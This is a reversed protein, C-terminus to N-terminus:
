RNGFLEAATKSRSSYEFHINPNQLSNKICLQEPTSDPLIITHVHPFSALDEPLIEQINTNQLQLGKISNKIMDIHQPPASAIPFLSITGRFGGYALYIPATGLGTINNIYQLPAFRDPPINQTAVTNMKFYSMNNIPDTEQTYLFSPQLSLFASFPPTFPYPESVVAIIKNHVTADHVSIPITSSESGYSNLLREKERERAIIFEKSWKGTREREKIHSFINKNEAPASSQM